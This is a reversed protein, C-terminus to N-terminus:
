KRTKRFTTFCIHKLVPNLDFENLLYKAHEMTIHGDLLKCHEIDELMWFYPSHYIITEIVRKHLIPYETRLRNLLNLVKKDNQVLFFVKGNSALSELKMAALRFWDNNKSTNSFNLIKWLDSTNVLKLFYDNKGIKEISNEAEIVKSLDKFINCIMEIQFYKSVIMEKHPFIKNWLCMVQQLNLELKTFLPLYTDLKDNCDVLYELLELVNKSTLKSRVININLKSLLDSCFWSFFTKYKKFNINKNWIEIMFNPEFTELAIQLYNPNITELALDADGKINQKLILPLIHLIDLKLFIKKEEVNLKMWLLLLCSKTLDKNSQKVVACDPPTPYELLTKVCISCLDIYKESIIKASLGFFRSETHEEQKICVPFKKTLINLDEIVIKKLDLTTM